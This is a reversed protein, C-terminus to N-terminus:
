QESMIKRICIIKIESLLSLGLHCLQEHLEQLNQLHHGISVIRSLTDTAQNNKGPRYSINFKYQSLELRWRVIEANEIKSKHSSDFMLSISKQDTVLKLLCGILFPSAM